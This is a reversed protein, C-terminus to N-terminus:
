WFKTSKTKEEKNNHKFSRLIDAYSIPNEKIRKEPLKYPEGEQNSEYGIGSKDLPSIQHNLIDDLIM